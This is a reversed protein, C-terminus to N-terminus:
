PRPPPNGPVLTQHPSTTPPPHHQPVYCRGGSACVPIQQVVMQYAYDIAQRVVVSKKLGKANAIRELKLYSEGTLTVNLNHKKALTTHFEGDLPDIASQNM